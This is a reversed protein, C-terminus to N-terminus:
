SIIPVMLALLLGAVQGCTGLLTCSDRSSCRGLLQQGTLVHLESQCTWACQLMVSRPPVSIFLRWTEEQLSFTGAGTHGLFSQSTGCDTCGLSHQEPEHSLGSSRGGRVPGSGSCGTTHVPKRESLRVLHVVCQLPFGVPLLFWKADQLALTEKEWEM